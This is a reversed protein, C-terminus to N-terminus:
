LVEALWQRLAEAEEPELIITARDSRDIIVVCGGRLAWDISSSPQVEEETPLPDLESTSM